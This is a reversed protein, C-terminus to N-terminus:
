KELAENLELDDSGGDSTLMDTDENHENELDHMQIEPNDTTEESDKLKHDPKNGSDEPPKTDKITGESDADSELISFPSQINGLATTAKLARKRNARQRTKPKKFAEQTKAAQETKPDEVPKNLPCERILHGHEHCKRCRFPIQEYDIAQFYDEDRFELWLRDHLAGSVDMEICIRACSTYRRQMTAESAKIFTGLKDGILKLSALGWYDIPLSFLHIWVPVSTFTEKEPAFNAKWPRM